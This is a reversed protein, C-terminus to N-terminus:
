AAYGHAGKLARHPYSPLGKFTGQVRNSVLRLMDPPLAAAGCLDLKLLNQVM